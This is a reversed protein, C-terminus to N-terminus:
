IISMVKLLFAIVILFIVFKSDLCFSVFKAIMDNMLCYRWKITFICYCSHFIHCYFGGYITDLISMLKDALFNIKNLM